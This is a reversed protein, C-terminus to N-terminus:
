SRLFWSPFRRQTKLGLGALLLSRRPSLGRSPDSRNKLGLAHLSLEYATALREIEEPEFATNELLTYISM